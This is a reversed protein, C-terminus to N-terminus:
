SAVRDLEGSILINSRLQAVSQLLWSGGLADEGKGDTLKVLM